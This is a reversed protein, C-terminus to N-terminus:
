LVDLEEVLNKYKLYFIDLDNKDITNQLDKLLIYAKNLNYEKKNEMNNMMAIMSEEALQLQRKVETSNNQEILAYANFVNSKVKYLNIEMQDDSFGSFYTPIYSYLKALLILTQPKNKDKIAKTLDDLDTNFSLIKQNDINQKYLDLTVVSWNSYISEIDTTLTDWDPTRDQTLINNEVMKYRVNNQKNGDQETQNSSSNSNSEQSSSNKGGSSQQKDSSGGNQSSQSEGGDSTQEKVKEASIQYNQFNLGNAKNLMDSISSDFYEIESKLKAKLYEDENHNSCGSLIFVSGIILLYCIYKKVKKM